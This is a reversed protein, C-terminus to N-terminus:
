PLEEHQLAKEYRRRWENWFAIYGNRTFEDDPINKPQCSNYYSEVKDAFRIVEAQYDQQSVWESAGSPLILKVGGNEHVVSWDVGNGCGSISVESLDKNAILFHGCCPIMQIDNESMVKDETLTKLLYLATASVTGDYEMAAKGIKVTVHGHLCLDEPDDEPGCIWTFNDVDISFTNM